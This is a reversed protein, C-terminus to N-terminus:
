GPERGLAPRVLDLLEPGCCIAFAGLSLNSEGRQAVTNLWGVPFKGKIASSFKEDNALQGSYDPGVENIDQLAATSSPLLDM